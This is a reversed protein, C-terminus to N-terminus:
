AVANVSTARSATRRESPVTGEDPVVWTGAQGALAPEVDLLNAIIGVGGARAFRVCAEVKPGMSGAKFEGQAQYAAMETATVRGLPRQAPTGYGVYAAEVDTLILLYSAGVAVALREASLDKDIVAEVGSLIGAADRVVPIGGGGNCIVLTGQDVLHAIVAAQVLEKPDPSAVVRRWGRGADERMVYGKELALEQARAASYFPGVPKSPAAFAPDDAAVVTETLLSCVAQTNGLRHLHNLLCQEFLYGLMGQSQAGCVDMPMPPVQAAAAENQLLINGVQPGNGHTLVCRYGAAALKAIRRASADVNFLQEEFSGAQGPQLIANGGLAIVVRAPPTAGSPAVGGARRRHETSRPSM